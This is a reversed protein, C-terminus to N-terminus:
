QSPLGEQPRVDSIGLELGLTRMPKSWDLDYLESRTFSQKTM